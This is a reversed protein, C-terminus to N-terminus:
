RYDHWADTFPKRFFTAWLYNASYRIGTMVVGDGRLRRGSSQAMLKWTFIVNGVQNMRRAIDTDEGYFQFTDSFGGAQTLADKLVIFNGGQVMSGVGLVHKNFAYTAYGLAYFMRSFARIHFPVDYYDYPGSLAVLKPDHAFAEFVRDLWFPPVKTDADINAILVGSAAEFGCRRASVLGKVPEHVVTVGPIAEAVEATRDTSANNVVLIEATCGTRAIEAKIALLSAPLLAEENFAPVVFSIQPRASM